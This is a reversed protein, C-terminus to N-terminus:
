EGKQKKTESWSTLSRKKFPIPGNRVQSHVLDRAFLSMM